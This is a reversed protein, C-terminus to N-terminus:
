TLNSLAKLQNVFKTVFKTFNKHLEYWNVDKPPPVFSPGKSLLSKQLSTLNLSSLNITNEDPGNVKAFQIQERYNNKHRVQKLKKKNILQKKSFFCNKRKKSDINHHETIKDRLLKRSHRHRIAKEMYRVKNCITAYTTKYDKDLLNSVLQVKLNKCQKKLWYIGKSIEKLIRSM